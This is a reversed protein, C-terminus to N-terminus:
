SAYVLAFHSSVIKINLFLPDCYKQSLDRVYIKYIAAVHSLLYILSYLQAQKPDVSFIFFHHFSILEEKKDQKQTLLHCGM